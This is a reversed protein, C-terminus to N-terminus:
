KFIFGLGFHRLMKKVFQKFFTFEGFLWGIIVLLAMYIPLIIIFKIPWYLLPHLNKSVGLLEAFPGSFKAATSGTIAFVVFIVFVRWNTDVGWRAKLRDIFSTNREAM